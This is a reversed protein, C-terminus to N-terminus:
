DTSHIFAEGKEKTGAPVDKGSTVQCENLNCNEGIKCGSGIVSNQLITNDGVTVDDM